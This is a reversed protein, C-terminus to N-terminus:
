LGIMFPLALSFFDWPQHVDLPKDGFLGNRFKTPFKTTWSQRVGRNQRLRRLKRCLKRCLAGFRPLPECCYELELACLRLGLAVLIQLEYAQSEGTGRAGVGLADNMGAWPLARPENTLFCNPASFARSM